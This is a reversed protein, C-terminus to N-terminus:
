DKGGFSVWVPKTDRTSITQKPLYEFFVAMQDANYVRNANRERMLGSVKSLFSLSRSKRPQPLVAAVGMDRTHRQKSGNKTVCDAQIKERKHKAWFHINKLKTERTTGSICPYFKSIIRNVINYMGYHSVMSLKVYYPETVRKHLRNQQGKDTTTTEFDGEELVGANNILRNITVGHLGEAM